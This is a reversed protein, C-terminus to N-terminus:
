DLDLAAEALLATVYPAFSRQVELHFTDPATRWLVIEAKGFITRTVMGVPFSSPDLDLPCAAVLLRAAQSGRIELSAHRHSIDVLSAAKNTAADKLATQLAQHLAAHM